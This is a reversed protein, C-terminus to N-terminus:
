PGIWPSGSNWANLKLEPQANEVSLKWYMSSEITSIVLGGDILPNLIM